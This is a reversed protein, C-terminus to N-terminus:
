KIGAQEKVSAPVLSIITTYLKQIREAYQDKVNAPVEIRTPPQDLSPDQWLIVTLRDEKGGILTNENKMDDMGVDFIKSKKLAKNLKKIGTKNCPVQFSWEDTGKANTYSLKSNGNEEILITYHYQYEPSVPGSSHYYEVTSWRPTQAQIMVAPILFVIALIINPLRM